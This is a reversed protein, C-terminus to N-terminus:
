IIDPNYPFKTERDNLVVVIETPALPAINPRIPEIKTIIYKLLFKLLFSQGTILQKPQKLRKESKHRINIYHCM